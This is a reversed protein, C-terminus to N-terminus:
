ILKYLQLCNGSRPNRQYKVDDVFNRIIYLGLGRERQADMYSPPDLPPHSEFDFGPGRDRLEIVVQDAQQSLSIWVGPSKEALDAGYGHEIINTFAEDVAMELQDIKEQSMGAQRCFDQIVGRARQLQEYNSPVHLNIAGEPGSQTGEM